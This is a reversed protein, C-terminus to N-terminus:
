TVHDLQSHDQGNHAQAHGERLALGLATLSLALVPEEEAVEETCSLTSELASHRAECIRISTIVVVEVPGIVVAEIVVWITVVVISLSHAIAPSTVRVERQLKM